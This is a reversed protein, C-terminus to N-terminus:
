IQARRICPPLPDLWAPEDDDEEAAVLASTTAAEEEVEETGALEDWGAGFNVLVPGSASQFSASERKALTKGHRLLLEHSVLIAAADATSSM